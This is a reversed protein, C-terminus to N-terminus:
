EYETFPEAASRVSPLAMYGPVSAVFQDILGNDIKSLGKLELQALVRLGSLPKATTPVGPVPRPINDRSNAFRQVGFGFSWCPADYQFGMVGDALRQGDLDYNIRSIGYLKRNALLPWQASLIIQRIPTDRLATSPRTYRYAANFVKRNEPSWAFGLNSRILQHTDPNYQIGTESALGAGMKFSAGLLLDSHNALARSVSPTLTTRQQKFYYQQALVLRAREDGDMARIFRTTIGTTLRSADAVRDNGIFTNGTYIEAFSFDSEVTDFIPINNQDRYPTFVYYARPELTQIYDQGFLVAPREFILGTDLSLTPIAVSLRNSQNRNLDYAAFHAQIKPTIFYEPRVIPYSISPNFVARQGQAAEQTMIRFRSFDLEASADVGGPLYANGWNYRGFRANIQPERAYPPLSPPLTQWYQRRAVVSWPGEKWTLGVEQPYLLQMGNIFLNNGAIEQPYANDSVRNYNVYGGFGKGFTQQHKVYMAYRNTKAIADYPLDEVFISGKYTTSLYRYEAGIMPGRRTILRPYLTADYNPAINFYYPFTTSIGSVSDIQVRPPLFGSQRGSSLPFSVYPSAFLPVGKFYLAANRAVGRNNGQDLDISHAKLYWVPDAPCDCVTYIGEEIVVHEPGSLNVRRAKGWGKTTNLYYTPSLMYGQRAQVNLHAEPGALVSGKYILHVDGWADARDTDPDYRLINAKVISDPSRIEAQADKSRVMEVKQRVQGKIQGGSLFRAAKDGPLLPHETLMPAMKLPPVPHPIGQPHLQSTSQSRSHPQGIRQISSRSLAHSPLLAEQAMCTSARGSVEILFVISAIHPLLSQLRGRRVFLYPFRTSASVLFIFLFDGM